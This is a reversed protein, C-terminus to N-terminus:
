DNVLRRRIFGAFERPRQVAPLHGGDNIQHQESDAFRERVAIRMAPPIMPDNDNDIILVRDPRLDPADLPPAQMMLLLRSKYNDLTQQAGVLAEVAIKLRIEGTDAASSDRMSKTNQDVLEAADTDAVVAVPPLGGLSPAPDIFGNAIVLKDVRDTYAAAFSQALYAGLSSGVLHAKSLGIAEMFQALGDDMAATDTLDPANVTILDLSDALHPFIAFFIDSGCQIGPLLIASPHGNIAKRSRRFTWSGSPLSISKLPYNQQFALLERKTDTGVMNTLSSM